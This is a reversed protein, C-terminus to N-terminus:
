ESGHRRKAVWLPLRKRWPKLPDRELDANELPEGKAEFSDEHSNNYWCENEQKKERKKKGFIRKFINMFNEM